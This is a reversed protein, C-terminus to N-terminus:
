RSEHYVLVPLEVNRIIKKTASSRFIRELFPQNEKLVVVLDAKNSTAQNDILKAIDDEGNEKVTKVSIHDYATKERLMENFGAERIKEEFDTNNTIHLATIGPSFGGTLDVLKKMTPIDEENYNTAYLITKFKHYEAGKPIVWIPCNMYRIVEMNSASQSWFGKDEHSELVIADAKGQSIFEEAIFRTIGLETSIDISVGQPLTKKIEDIKKILVKKGEEVMKTLNSLVQVSVTGVSGPIGLPYDDPNLVYLLHIDANLDKALNAAYHIFEGSEHPSNIISLLTKM